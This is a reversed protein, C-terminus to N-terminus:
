CWISRLQQKWARATKVKSFSHVAGVAYSAPHAGPGTQVSHFITNAIATATVAAATGGRRTYAKMAHHVCLSHRRASVFKTDNLPWQALKSRYM